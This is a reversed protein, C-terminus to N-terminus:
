FFSSLLVPMPLFLRQFISLQPHWLILWWFWLSIFHTVNNSYTLLLSPISFNNKHQASILLPHLLHPCPWVEPFAWVVPIFLRIYPVLKTLITNFFFFIISAGHDGIDTGSRSIWWTQEQQGNEFEWWWCSQTGIASHTTDHKCYEAIDAGKRGVISWGSLVTYVNDDTVVLANCAWNARAAFRVWSQLLKAVNFTVSPHHKWRLLMQSHCWLPFLKWRLWYVPFYYSLTTSSYIPLM